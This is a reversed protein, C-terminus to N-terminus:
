WLGLVRGQTKRGEDAQPERRAEYARPPAGEYRRVARAVLSLCIVFVFCTVFVAMALLAIGDAM